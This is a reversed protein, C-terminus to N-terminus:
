YAAPEGRSGQARPCLAQVGVDSSSPPLAAKSVECHTYDIDSQKKTCEREMLFCQSIEM